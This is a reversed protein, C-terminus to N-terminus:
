EFKSLLLEIKEKIQETVTVLVIGLGNQGYIVLSGLPALLISPLAMLDEEGQIVILNKKTGNLVSNIKKSLEQVPMKQIKGPSNKFFGGIKLHKTHLYEKRQTKKDIIQIDPTFDNRTLSASVVDGVSIILPYQNKKIVSITKQAANNINEDNGTIIEGFPERLSERLHQPLILANKKNFLYLYKTGLSNIEGKRIRNSRLIKKDTAKILPITIINLKALQAQKRLQNIKVANPRTEKSVVISDMTKDHIAPGFIDTLPIIAVKNQLKNETLFQLVHNKREAFSELSERFLKKQLLEDKAIGITVKKATNFATELLRIHGKHFHDFSGGVAAHKYKPATKM